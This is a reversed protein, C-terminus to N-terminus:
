HFGRVAMSLVEELQAQDSLQERQNKLWAKLGKDESIDRLDQKMFRLEDELGRVEQRMSTQLVKVTVPGYSVEFEDRAQDQAHTFQAQLSQLQEKLVRNFHRLKEQAVASIAKTDIQEIKLQLQLLALLDKKDNAANVQVMLDTKRKREQEDPERDPHLASALKRYIERMAKGADLDDQEAILQKRSKKTPRAKRRAARHAEEAERQAQQKRMAAAMVQEPSELAAAEDANLGLAHAALGQLEALAQARTTALDIASHRDYLTQMEVGHPGQLHGYAINCIIQAATQQATKNLGKPSLLREDLRRALQLQLAHHQAQLPEVARARLPRHANVLAGLELLKGQLADIKTLLQNFLQQEPALLGSVIVLSHASAPPNQPAAQQHTLLDDFLTRNPAKSM